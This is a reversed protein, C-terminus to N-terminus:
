DHASEEVPSAKAIAQMASVEWTGRVDYERGSLRDNEDV